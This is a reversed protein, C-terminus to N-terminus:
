TDVGRFVDAENSAAVTRDVLVSLIRCLPKSMALPTCGRGGRFRASETVGCSRGDEGECARSASEALLMWRSPAVRGEVRLMWTSEGSMSSGLVVRLAAGGGAGELAAISTSASEVVIVITSM